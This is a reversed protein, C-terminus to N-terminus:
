SNTAGLPASNGGLVERPIKVAETPLMGQETSSFPPTSQLDIVGVPQAMFKVPQLNALVDDEGYVDVVLLFQCMQAFATSLKMAVIGTLTVTVLPCKAVHLRDPPTSVSLSPPATGEPVPVTVLKEAPVRDGTNVVDTAVAVVVGASDNV